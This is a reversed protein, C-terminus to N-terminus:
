AREGEAVRTTSWAFCEVVQRLLTEFGDSDPFRQAYAAYQWAHVVRTFVDREAALPLRRSVRLVEAETAGPVLVVQARATMTEVSARYMLALAERQRGERWLRGIASPLDDPLAAPAEVAERKLTDQEREERAGRRFWGIWRPLTLVLALLLMGAIIWLGYEAAVALFAGMGVLFANDQRREEKKKEAPKRAKWSSVQRKPSVTPDAFARKTADRLSRDDALPARFVQELTVAPRTKAIAQRAQEAEKRAQADPTAKGEDESAPQSENAPATPGQWSGAEQAQAQSVLPAFLGAVALLLALPAAGALLRARLRRLTLEIDWAEIETRRNLYLGFGAGVFFPEIISTALWVVANSALAMWMPPNALLVWLKAVTGSAYENPVFLMVLAVMGLSLALVFHLCVVTLLSAVGYVPAGLAQRRARAESGRADELLDIPLYLSRVLGLRRWSLYPLLWRRGWTWQAKLTQAPTPVDGFVARSLVFLAIRDFAPKLWWMLLAGLWARDLSWALLNALVFVPLTLALWPKWIAGAHRRTLAMGLEVAEWATRPRLAVTLAEIKM